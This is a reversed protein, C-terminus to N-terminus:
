WQSEFIVIYVECLIVVYSSALTYNIILEYATSVVTLYGSISLAQNKINQFVFYVTKYWFACSLLKTWCQYSIFSFSFINAVHCSIKDFIFFTEQTHYQSLMTGIVIVIWYLFWLLQTRIGSLRSMINYLTDTIQPM